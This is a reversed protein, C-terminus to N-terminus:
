ARIMTVGPLHAIRDVEELYRDTLAAVYDDTWGPMDIEVNVQDPRSFKELFATAIRRRQGVSQPPHEACYAKMRALGIENMIMGLVEDTDVLPTGPAHGSVSQLVEPWILPTDEDCWITLPVGPNHYLIQRAVNVWSLQMADVPALGERSGKAEVKQKLAPLFTAPNRIALHCEVELSPFVRRLANVREGALYYLGGTVAWNPFNLFNDWSLILREAHDADMIQDLLLAQQDDTAVDDKLQLLTERLLKRYRTPSPVEIGQDALVARNKLLCRVLREEDTCHAGLHYVIRM